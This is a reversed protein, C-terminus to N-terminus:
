YGHEMENARREALELGSLYELSLAFGPQTISVWGALAL